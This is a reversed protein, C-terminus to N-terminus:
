CSILSNNEFIDFELSSLAICTQAELTCQAFFPYVAKIQPAFARCNPGGASLVTRKWHESDTVCILFPKQNKKHDQSAGGV